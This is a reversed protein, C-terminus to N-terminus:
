SFVQISRPSSMGAESSLGEALGNKGVSSQRLSVKFHILWPLGLELELELLILKELTWASSLFFSAGLLHFRSRPLVCKADGPLASGIKTKTAESDCLCHRFPPM